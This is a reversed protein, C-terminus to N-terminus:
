RLIEDKLIAAAIEESSPNYEGAAIQVQLDSVKAERIDPFQKVQDVLKGVESAKTSLELKDEDIKVKNEVTASTNKGVQQLDHQRNLRIADM